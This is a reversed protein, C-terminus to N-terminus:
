IKKLTATFTSGKNEGESAASLTGGHAELIKRAIYLGFGTGRIEKKVREDRVYEEFLHPLLDAPIGLGTDSVKFVVADGDEKVEVVVKGSPTYKIANDIFNQIVQQLKQGDAMIMVPHDPLRVELVLNKTQTLPQLEDAKARVLEVFDVKEMRYDMKGEEVKRLNLFTDILALLEDSALMIKNLKDKVQDNVEGFLGQMCLSAYSKIAALPSKTQHSALSLLQTKYASLEELKKNAKQLEGTLRELEERQEVEKRVSKILLIGFSIILALIASRFILVLPDDAIIIEFFSVIALIFTLIETAVVKVNFLHHRLIAYSTAAIFPFMFLAGLQIFGPNNFFAPLFFNFIMILFLMTAIGFLFIQLSRKNEDGAMIKKVLLFIAGFNLYLVVLGFLIIGPGNGVRLIQGGPTSKIVNNFVLPTLTTLSTSIVVSLITNRYWSSIKLKVAPFDYALAFTFFASWVAFFMVLRLLWLSVEISNIQYSSYNILGWLSASISLCLFLKNSVSKPNNFFTVFGLIIMGTVAIGVSLLDLNKLNSLAFLM